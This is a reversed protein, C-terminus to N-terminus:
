LQTASISILIDAFNAYQDAFYIPINTSIPARISALSFQHIDLDLNTLSAMYVMYTKNRM